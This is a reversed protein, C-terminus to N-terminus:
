AAICSRSARPSPMSERGRELTLVNKVVDACSKVSWGGSMVRQVIQQLQQFLADLLSPRGRSRDVARRQPTLQIPRNVLVLPGFGFLLGGARGADSQLPRLCAVGCPEPIAM